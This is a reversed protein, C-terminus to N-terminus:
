KSQENIQKVQRLVDAAAKQEALRRSRATAQSRIPMDDLVCEVTFRQNHQEGMTEVITYTPLRMGRKQM